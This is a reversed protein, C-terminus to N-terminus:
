TMIEQYLLPLYSSQFKISDEVLLIVKVLGRKTDEEANWKDEVTKVMAIFLKPDGNWIFINEFNKILKPYRDLITLDSKVTLLLLIPLSPYKKKIRESLEFPSIEGIRMTTIVLDYQHKELKRLAEDGTPVSTIRPVTILNLQRYEDVIKETLAADHEFIYADYFTSILLIEKIRLQMLDHFNDEGYKFKSYYKNLEKIDM